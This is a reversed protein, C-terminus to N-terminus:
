NSHTEFLNHSSVTGIVFSGPSTQSEWQKSTDMEWGTGSYAFPSDAPGTYTTPVYMGARVDAARQNLWKYYDDYNYENIFIRLTYDALTQNQDHYVDKYLSITKNYRKNEDPLDYNIYLSTYPDGTDYNISFDQFGDPYDCALRKEFNFCKEDDDHEGRDLWYSTRGLDEDKYSKIKRGTKESEDRLRQMYYEFYYEMSQEALWSRVVVVQARASLKELSEAFKIDQTAIYRKIPTLREAVEDEDILFGSDKVVNVPSTDVAYVNHLPLLGYFVMILIKKATM